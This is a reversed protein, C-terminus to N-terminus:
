PILTSTAIAGLVFRGIACATATGACWTVISVTIVSAICAGFAVSHWHTWRPRTVDEEKGPKPPEKMEALIENRMQGVAQKMEILDQHVSEQLGPSGKEEIIKLKANWQDRLQTNVEKYEMLDGLQTTLDQYIIDFQRQGRLYPISQTDHKSFIGREQWVAMMKEHQEICRALLKDSAELLKVAIEYYEKIGYQRARGVYELAEVVDNTSALYLALFQLLEPAIEEPDGKERLAEEFGRTMRPVNIALSVESGMIVILFVAIGIIFPRRM